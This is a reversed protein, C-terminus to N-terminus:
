NQCESVGRLSDAIHSYGEYRMTSVAGRDVAERIACGPEHLHSCDRFRCDDVLPAMEVFHEVLNGRDVGWPQLSKLGPTDAVYGGGAPLAYLQTAATTHKGRDHKKMLEATPIDLTCIRNLLTSKGVGSQGVFASVREELLRELSDIGAGTKASTRVLQYGLSGYVRELHRASCDSDSLDIKNLCILPQISGALATVLARDIFGPSVVPQRRSVVVIFQDINAALVQEYPRSGAAARSIKSHRPYLSEIVGRASGTPAFDVWDGTVVPSSTSRFGEKLRGRIECRWCRGDDSEVLSQLGSLRLM